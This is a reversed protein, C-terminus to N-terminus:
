RVHTVTDAHAVRWSQFKVPVAILAMGMVIAIAVASMLTNRSRKRNM